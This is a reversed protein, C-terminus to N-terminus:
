RSITELCTAWCIRKGLSCMIMVDPLAKEIQLYDKISLVQQDDFYTATGYATMIAYGAPAYFLSEGESLVKLLPYDSPNLDKEFFPM